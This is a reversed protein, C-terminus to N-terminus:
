RRLAFWGGAILGIPIATLWLVFSLALRLILFLLFLPFAFIILLLPLAFFWEFVGDFVTNRISYYLERALPFMLANIAILAILIMEGIHRVGGRNVISFILLASWVAGIMFSYIINTEVIRGYTAAFM